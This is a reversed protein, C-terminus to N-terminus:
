KEPLFTAVEELRNIINKITGRNACPFEVSGDLVEDYICLTEVHNPDKNALVGVCKKNGLTIYVAFNPRM